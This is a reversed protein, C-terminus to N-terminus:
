ADTEIQMGEEALIQCSRQHKVGNISVRCEFCIGMGCVPARPSGSVSRRFINNDSLFVVTAVTSKDPVEFTKNNIKVTIM